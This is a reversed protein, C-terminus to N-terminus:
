WDMIMDPNSTTRQNFRLTLSNAAKSGMMRDDVHGDDLKDEKVKLYEAQSVRVAFYGNWQLKGTEASTVPVEVRIGAPNTAEVVVFWSKGKDTAEGRNCGAPDYCREVGSKVGTRDVIQITLAAAAFDLMQELHRLRYHTQTAERADLSTNAQALLLQLQTRDGASLPMAKLRQALQDRLAIKDLWDGTEDIQLRLQGVYRSAATLTSNDKVQLLQQDASNALEKLNPFQALGKLYTPLAMLRALEDRQEYIGEVTAFASRTPYMADRIQKIQAERKEVLAKVSDRNTKDVFQPVDSAFTQALPPLTQRVEDLIRSVAADPRALAKQQWQELKEHKLQIEARLDEDHLRLDRASNDIEITVGSDHVLRTCQTILLAAIITLFLKFLQGRAMSAKSLLKQKWSLPPAEFMLRRAFFERVGQDILAEDFAINHSQYYDRIRAAVDARRKPLNLHEQVQMHQHRLEDVFAMAGLQESLPISSM